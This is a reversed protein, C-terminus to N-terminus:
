ARGETEELKREILALNSELRQSGPSAACAALACERAKQYLGLCYAAVAGYDYLAAGWCAPQELYSGSPAQISLGGQVMAWVLPWNRERYGYEALALYAERTHPCEAMARFLWSKEGESDGLNRCCEALLRMSTSREEDWRASPLDLHAQLTELAKSFDGNSVYERGLWFRARDDDPDEEVSLELLPLYQSRSKNPDPYHHLVLGDVWIDKEASPEEYELVEHVPHVWRYGHRCHIKERPYVLDPSGDPRHSWVYSYRARTTDPQWAAELIARWGPEFIEDLDISVCIDVDEPLHNLAVNRAVDFRWPSVTEEYVTAGRARLADVTGDTSGTDAVVVVDAESVADMWRNVFSEENKCIAYVGIRFHSM